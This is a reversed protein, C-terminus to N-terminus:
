PALQILLTAIVRNQTRNVWDMVLDAPFPPNMSKNPGISGRAGHAMMKDEVRQAAKM